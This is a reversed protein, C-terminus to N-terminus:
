LAQTGLAQMLTSGWPHDGGTGMAKERRASMWQQPGHEHLVSKWM